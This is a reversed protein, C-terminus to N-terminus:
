QELNKPIVLTYSDFDLIAKYKALSRSGIIGGYTYGEFTFNGKEFDRIQFPLSPLQLFGLQPKPIQYITNDTAAKETDQIKLLKAADTTLFNTAAGTDVLFLFKHEGVKVPVYPYDNQQTKALNIVHHGQAKLSNTYTKAPAEAPPFVLAGTAYNFSARFKRLAKCGILGDVQQAQGDIKLANRNGFSATPATVGRLGRVKGLAIQNFSVMYLQGGDVAKQNGKAPTLTKGIAEAWKKNIVFNSSAGSDVLFKGSKGDATVPVFYHGGSDAVTTKLQKFAFQQEQASTSTLTLVALTLTFLSKLM